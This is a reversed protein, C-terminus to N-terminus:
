CRLSSLKVPYNRGPEWEILPEFFETKTVAVDLIRDGSASGSTALSPDFRTIAGFGRV